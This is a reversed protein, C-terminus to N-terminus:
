YGDAEMAKFDWMSEMSTWHYEPHLDLFRLLYKACLRSVGAYDWEVNAPCSELWERMQEPTREQDKEPQKGGLAARLAVAADIGLHAGDQSM